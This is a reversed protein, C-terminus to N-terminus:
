AFANYFHAFPHCAHTTCVSPLLSLTRRRLTVIRPNRGIPMWDKSGADGPPACIAQGLLVAHRYPNSLDFSRYAKGRDRYGRREPQGKGDSLTISDQRQNAM